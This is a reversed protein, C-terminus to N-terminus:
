SALSERRFFLRRRFPNEKEALPMLIAYAALLGVDTTLPM